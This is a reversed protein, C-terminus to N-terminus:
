RCVSPSSPTREAARDQAEAASGDLAAILGLRFWRGPVSGPTGDPEHALAVLGGVVVAARRASAASRASARAAAAAAIGASTACAPRRGPTRTAPRTARRRSSPPAPTRSGRRGRGGSGAPRRRAGRSEAWRQGGSAAAMTPRTTATRTRSCASAPLVSGAPPRSRRRNKSPRRHARRPSRWRRSRCGPRSGLSRCGLRSRRSRCGLRRRRSRCGSRRHASRCGPRWRRSRCGSRRRRSRRGPRWRRSRCGSRSGLSRCGPRSRRGRRHTRRHTRRPSQSAAARSGAGAARGGDARGGRDAAPGRRGRAAARGAAGCSAQRCRGRRVPLGARRRLRARAATSSSSPRSARPSWRCTRARPRASSRRARDRRRRRRDDLRGVFRGTSRSRTSRRLQQLYALSSYGTGFDDIALQVGLAACRPAAGARRRRRRRDARTETIELMLWTPSRPRQEGLAEVVHASSAPTPSSARRLRQRRRRATARRARRAALRGRRPVGRAAGLRRAAVILGTEEALPIFEDPAVCRRADPHQWRVLAEVGVVPRDRLDVIPQYHSGFEGDTSRAACSASSSSRAAGRPRADGTDFVEVRARGPRRPRTCRRRRRRAAADDADGGAPAVAVGISATVVAGDGTSSPDADRAGDLLREAVRPAEATADVGEVLVRSSTAASGPWPTAPGCPARLREARGRCCSTAPPTASRTTSARSTTWTSCCCRWGGAAAPWGAPGPGGGRRAPARNGLGTLPDLLGDQSEEAAFAANDLATLVQRALLLVIVAVSGLMLGPGRLGPGAMAAAILAVAVPLYPLLVRARVGRDDPASSRSRAAGARRRRACRLRGGHAPLGGPWILDLPGGALYEGRILMGVLALRGVARVALGPCVLLVPVRWRGRARAAVLVVAALTIVSAFSYPM